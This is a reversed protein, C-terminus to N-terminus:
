LCTSDLSLGYVHATDEDCIMVFYGSMGRLQDVNAFHRRGHHNLDVNPNQLSLRLRAGKSNAAVSFM